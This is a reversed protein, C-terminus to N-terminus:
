IPDMGKKALWYSPSYSVHGQPLECRWGSSPGMPPRKLAWNRLGQPGPHQLGGDRLSCHSFEHGWLSKPTWSLWEQVHLGFPARHSYGEIVSCAKFLM